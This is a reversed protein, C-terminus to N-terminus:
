DKDMEEFRDHWDDMSKSLKAECEPSCFQDGWAGAGLPTGCVSCNTRKPPKYDAPASPTEKSRYGSVFAYVILVVM